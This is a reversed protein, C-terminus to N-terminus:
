RHCTSCNTLLTMRTTPHGSEDILGLGKMIENGQADKEEETRELGWDLDTVRDVPRLHSAPDRHCSLCWGMSLPKVQHVEEMQDIRGHCEVCSVGRTVHASHNFYVYDPLDHVKIWEVPMGSSFSARIPDLKTSTPAIKEHCNICTQTPPIAAFAASEVTTHCYRCDLGLEGVHLAHSYPVPQEPMYGANLTKPSLGFYVMLVVYLGTVAAGAGLLKLLQDMWPRFIPDRSM